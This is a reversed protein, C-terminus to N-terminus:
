ARLPPMGGGPFVDGVTKERERFVDQEARLKGFVVGPVAGERTFQQLLNGGFGVRFSKTNSLWISACIKQCLKVDALHAARRFYKLSAEDMLRLRLMLYPKPQREVAEGKSQALHTSSKLITEWALSFCRLASCDAVRWIVCIIEKDNRAYM